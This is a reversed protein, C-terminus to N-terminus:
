VDDPGAGEDDVVVAADVGDEDEGEGDEEVRGGGNEVVPPLSELGEKLAQVKAKTMEFVYQGIHEVSVM